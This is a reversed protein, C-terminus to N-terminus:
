GSLDVFVIPRFVREIRRVRDDVLDLLLSFVVVQFIRDPTALISM